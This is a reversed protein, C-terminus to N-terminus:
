MSKQVVGFIGTESVTIHEAVEAVSWRDPGPKFTWQKQSLGAISKLFNDRTTQFSKLASEREEPTLTPAASQAWVSVTSLGAGLFLVLIAVTKKGLMIKRLRPIQLPTM